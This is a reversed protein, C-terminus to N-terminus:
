PKGWGGNWYNNVPIRAGCRQCYYVISIKGGALDREGSDTPPLHCLRLLCGLRRLLYTIKDRSVRERRM